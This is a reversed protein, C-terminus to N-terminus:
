LSLMARSSKQRVTDQYFQVLYAELVIGAALRAHLIHLFLCTTAGLFEPIGLAKCHEANYFASQCADASSGSSTNWGSSSMKSAWTAAGM